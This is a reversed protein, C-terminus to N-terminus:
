RDAVGHHLVLCPLRRRDDVTRRVRLGQAAVGPREAHGYRLQQLAMWLPSSAGFNRACAPSSQPKGDDTQFEAPSGVPVAPVRPRPSALASSFDPRSNHIFPLSNDGAQLNYDPDGSKGKEPTGGIAELGRATLAVAVVRDSGGPVLRVHALQVLLPQDLRIDHMDTGDLLAGLHGVLKQKDILSASVSGVSWIQYM